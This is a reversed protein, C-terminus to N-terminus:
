DHGDHAHPSLNKFAILEAPSEEKEYDIDLIKCITKQYYNPATRYASVLKGEHMSLEDLKSHKELIRGQTLEGIDIGLAHCIDIILTVSSGMVGRQLMNTITSYPFNNKTCFERVSKYKSLICNKLLKDVANQMDQENRYSAVLNKEKATLLFQGTESKRKEDFTLGIDEVGYIDCLLLLTDVDPQGRGNEWANVTKGCKGILAGVDDAKM